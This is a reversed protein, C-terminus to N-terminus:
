ASVEIAGEANHRLAKLVTDVIHAAYSNHCFYAAVGRSYKESGPKGWGSKDRVLELM